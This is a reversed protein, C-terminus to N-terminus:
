RMRASGSVIGMANIRAQKSLELIRAHGDPSIHPTGCATCVWSEEEKPNNNKLYAQIKQPGQFCTPCFPGSRDNGWFVGKEFVMETKAKLIRKLEQNEELLAMQDERNTLADENMKVILKRLEVITEDKDLTNIQNMLEIAKKTGSYLTKAATLTAGIEIM